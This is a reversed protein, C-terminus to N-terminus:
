VRLRVVRVRGVFNSVLRIGHRGRYLYISGISGHGRSNYRLKQPRIRISDLRVFGAGGLDVRSLVRGGRLAVEISKGATRVETPAHNAVAHLRARMLQSEALRAARTVAFSDFSPTSVVVAAAIGVLVVVILVEVLSYGDPRRLVPWAERGRPAAYGSRRRM